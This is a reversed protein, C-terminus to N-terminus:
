GSQQNGDARHSLLGPSGANSLGSGRTRVGSEKKIRDRNGPPTDWIMRMRRLLSIDGFPCKCPWRGRNAYTGCRLVPPAKHENERALDAFRDNQILFDSRFYPFTESRVNAHGVDEILMRVAAFCPLHRISTKVRWTPSVIM